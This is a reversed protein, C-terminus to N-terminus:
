KNQSFVQPYAHSALHRISIRANRLHNAYAVQASSSASLILQTARFSDAASALKDAAVAVTRLSKM